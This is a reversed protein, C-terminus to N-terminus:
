IYYSLLFAKKSDIAKEASMFILLSRRANGGKFLPPLSSFTLSNTFLQLIVIKLRGRLFAAPLARLDHPSRRV